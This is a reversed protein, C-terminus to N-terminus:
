ALRGVASPVAGASFQVDSQPSVPTPAIASSGNGALFAIAALACLAQPNALICLRRM